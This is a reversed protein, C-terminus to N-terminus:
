PSGEGLRETGPAYASGGSAHSGPFVDVPVGPVAERAIAAVEELFEPSLARVSALRPRRAVTTVQVGALAGGAAVIEHLRAAWARIEARPPVQASKELFLSQIVLPRRRAEERINELIREFPVTSADIARYWEDTGADLKAWVRGGRAALVDLGHRVHPLHFTSANTLLTMPVGKHVRDIVAGAADVVAAFRPYTTPEGDGSFAVDALRRLSPDAHDITVLAALGERHVTALMTELEALLVAEDVVDDFALEARDVQCYICAFNCVRDPNLNIGVSVGRARRSLVAYVFRHSGFRRPHDDTRLAPRRDTDPVGIM